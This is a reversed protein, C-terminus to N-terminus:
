SVRKSQRTGEPVPFAKVAELLEIEATPWSLDFRERRRTGPVANLSPILLAPPVGLAAALLFLTRLTTNGPKGKASTRSNEINQVQNRDVGAAHALDIQTIGQARRVAALRRGLEEAYPGTSRSPARERNLCM